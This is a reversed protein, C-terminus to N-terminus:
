LIFHSLVLSNLKELKTILDAASDAEKTLRSTINRVLFISSFM